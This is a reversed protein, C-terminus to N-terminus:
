RRRWAILGGVIVVGGAALLGDRVSRDIAPQMVEDITVREGRGALAERQRAVYERAGSATGRDQVVAFAALAVLMTM